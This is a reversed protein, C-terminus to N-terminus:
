LHFIGKHRPGWYYWAYETADTGSGTFSPRQSLVFLASPENAQFWAKRKKSGLFNIRLLLFVEDAHLVAHAAFEMASSYPPNTVICDSIETDALFDYGSNLDNGGAELGAEVMWRILRGDGSAPEWIYKGKPLYPILPEFASEPTPYFDSQIRIAGRNTASM